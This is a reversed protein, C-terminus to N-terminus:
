SETVFYLLGGNIMTMQLTQYNFIGPLLIKSFKLPSTQLRVIRQGCVCCVARYFMCARGSGGGAGGM